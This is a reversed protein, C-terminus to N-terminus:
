LLGQGHDRPAFVQRGLGTISRTPKKASPTTAYDAAPTPALLRRTPGLPPPPVPPPLNFNACITGVKIQPLIEAVSQLQFLLLQCVRLIKRQQGRVIVIIVSNGLDYLGVYCKHYLFLSLSEFSVIVAFLNKGELMSGRALFFSLCLLGVERELM